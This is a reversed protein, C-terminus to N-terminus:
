ILGVEKFGDIIGANKCDSTIVDSIKKIEEKANGMAVSVNVQQMMEIDNLGDGFGYTTVNTKSNEVLRRIAEGKSINGDLIELCSDNWRISSYNEPLKENLSDVHNKEGFAWIQFIGATKCKPSIEVDVMGYGEIQECIWKVDDDSVITIGERTEYGLYVNENKFIDILEQVHTEEYYEQFIIEGDLCIEHGNSCVYSRLGLQDIYKKAQKYGRGTCIFAHLNESRISDLYQVIKIDIDNEGEPLLTGDIDLFVYKM